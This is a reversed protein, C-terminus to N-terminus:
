VGRRGRLFVGAFVAVFILIAAAPEPVAASQGLASGSGPTKGFNAKWTDYQTSGITGGTPDNPLVNTTGVNKRWLAYDAADVVGNSNYDGAIGMAPGLMSVMLEGTGTLRGLGNAANYTGPALPTGNLYLYRITDQGTYGLNLFAGSSVLIDANDSSIQLGSTPLM